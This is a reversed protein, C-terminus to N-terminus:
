GAKARAAEKNRRRRERRSGGGRRGDRNGIRVADRLRIGPRPEDEGGGMVGSLAKDYWSSRAAERETRAVEEVDGNMRPVAVAECIVTPENRLSGGADDITRQLVGSGDKPENRLVEQAADDTKGHSDGESIANPENRLSGGADDMTGELARSVDNPENRSVATGGMRPTEDRRPEVVPSQEEADVGATALCDDNLGACGDQEHGHEHDDNRHDHAHDDSALWGASPPLYYSSRGRGSKLREQNRKELENKNKIMLRNWAFEYRLMLLGEHSLDFKALNSGLEAELDAWEQHNQAKEELREIQMRVVGILHERASDRDMVPKQGILGQYENELAPLDNASVVENWLESVLSGATPDLTQCAQLMSTLGDNLYADMPRIGMLRMVRFRESASWGKGREIPALLANWEILLWRVGLPNSELNRVVQAPRMEGAADLKGNGTQPELLEGRPLVTPRGNPARFLQASLETLENELRQQAQAHGTVAQAHMRAFTAERCRKLQWSCYVAEETLGVEYSTQPMFHEFYAKTQGNFEAPKEEPLLVLKATCAHKVANFRSRNKGEITRPGTSHKANQRNRRMQAETTM